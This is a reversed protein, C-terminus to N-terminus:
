KINENIIFYHGMIKSNNTLLIYLISCKYLQEFGTQLTSKLKACTEFSKNFM